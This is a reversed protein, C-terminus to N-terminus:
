DEPAVEFARWRKLEWLATRSVKGPLLGIHVIGVDGLAQGVTEAGADMLIHDTRGDNELKQRVKRIGDASVDNPAVYAILESAKRKVTDSGTVIQGSRRALGLWSLAREQLQAALRTAFAEATDGDALPTPQKFARAFAGKKLAISLAARSPTLWAGRGPLKEALDPVPSGDPGRVFRIALAAPPM